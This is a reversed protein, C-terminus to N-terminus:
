PVNATRCKMAAASSISARTAHMTRRARGAATRALEAVDRSSSEMFRLCARHSSFTSMGTAGSKVQLSAAAAVLGIMTFLVVLLGVGYVTQSAEDIRVSRGFWKSLRNAAVGCVWNWHLMLHLVIGLALLALINFQLGTWADYDHGWLSWRQAQTGPPFVFRVIVSTAVLCSFVILLLTDLLFNVATRSM